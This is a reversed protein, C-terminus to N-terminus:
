LLDLSPNGLHKGNIYFSYSTSALNLLVGTKLIVNGSTSFRSILNNLSTFVPCVSMAEVNSMASGLFYCCMGSNFNSRRERALCSVPAKRRKSNESPKGHHTCPNTGRAGWIHPFLIIRHLLSQMGTEKMNFVLKKFNDSLPVAVDIIREAARFGGTSSNKKRTIRMEVM